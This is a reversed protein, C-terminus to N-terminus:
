FRIGPRLILQFILLLAFLALSPWALPARVPDGSGDKRALAFGLTTWGAGVINVILPILSTEVPNRPIRFPVILGVSLIAALLIIKIGSPAAVQEGHAAAPFLRALTTGSLALAVAAVLALGVHVLPSLGLYTLARGVDNGPVVAGIGLQTLSQSLGQFAMWFCFLRATASLRSGTALLGTAALGLTLTALAGCGQLLEATPASGTWEHNNHFLVPHLGPTFAKPIVLWLEQWFFVLNFALACFLVSGLIPLPVSTRSGHAALALGIALPAIGLVAFLLLIVAM